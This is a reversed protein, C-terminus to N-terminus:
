WVVRIFYNTKEKSSMDIQVSANLNNYLGCVYFKQFYGQPISVYLTPCNLEMVSYMKLFERKFEFM